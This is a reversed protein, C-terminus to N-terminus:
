RVLGEARAQRMAAARPDSRQTRARLWADYVSPVQCLAEALWQVPVGELEAAAQTAGYQVLGLACAADLASAAQDAEPKAAQLAACGAFIVACLVTALKTM